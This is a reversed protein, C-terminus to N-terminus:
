RSAAEATAAACASVAAAHHGDPQMPLKLHGAQVGAYDNPRGDRSTLPCNRRKL